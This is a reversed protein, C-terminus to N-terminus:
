IRRGEGGCAVDEKLRDFCRYGLRVATAGEYRIHLARLEPRSMMIFNSSKEPKRKPQVVLLVLLEESVGLPGAQQMVRGLGRSQDANVKLLTQITEIM